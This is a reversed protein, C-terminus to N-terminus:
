LRARLAIRLPASQSLASHLSGLTSHQTRSHSRLLLLLCDGAGGGAEMANCQMANSEWPPIANRPLVFGISCEPIERNDDGHNGALLSERTHLELIVRRAAVVTKRKMRQENESEDEDEEEEEEQIWGSGSYEYPPRRACVAVSTYTHPRIGSKWKYM